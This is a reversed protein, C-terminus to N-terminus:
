NPLTYKTQRHAPRPVSGLGRVPRGPRALGSAFYGVGPWVAGYDSFDRGARQVSHRPCRFFLTYDISKYHNILPGVSPHCFPAKAAQRYMYPGTNRLGDTGPPPGTTFPTRALHPLLAANPFSRHPEPAMNQPPRCNWPAHPTLPSGPWTQCCLQTQSAETLSQPLTRLLGDIGPPM